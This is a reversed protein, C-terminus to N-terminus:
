KEMQRGAERDTGKSSVEAQVQEKVQEPVPRGVSATDNCAKKETPAAQASSECPVHAADLGLCCALADSVEADTVPATKFVDCAGEWGEAMAQRHRPEASVASEPGVCRLELASRSLAHRRRRPLAGGM